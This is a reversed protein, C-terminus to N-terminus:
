ACFNQCSTRFQCTFRLADGAQCPENNDCRSQSLMSRWVLQRPYGVVLSAIGRHTSPLLAVRALHLKEGVRGSRVTRVTRYARCLLAVTRSPHNAVTVCLLIDGGGIVGGEKGLNSRYTRRTAVSAPFTRMGVSIFLMLKSFYKTGVMSLCLYKLGVSHKKM